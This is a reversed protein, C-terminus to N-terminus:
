LAMELCKAEDVGQFQCCSLKLTTNAVICRVEDVGEHIIPTTKWAEQVLLPNIFICMLFHNTSM